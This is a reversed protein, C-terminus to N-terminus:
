LDLELMEYDAARMGLRRYTKKARENEHEVYLRLGCVDGRRLAEGRVSEFLAGFVGRRRLDPRVYVSQIWWYTKCRWDSWEWTLLLCGAVEGDVEAVLYRGLSPDAVVARVGRLVVAPDLTKDETERAMAVNFAAIIEADTERADRAAVTSV